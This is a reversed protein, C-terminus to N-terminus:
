KAALEKKAIFLNLLSRKALIVWLLFPLAQSFVCLPANLRYYWVSRTQYDSQLLNSEIFLLIHCGILILLGIVLKTIRKKFQIDKTLLMLSIFPILNNFIDIQYRFVEIKIGLTRFLHLLFGDLVYLYYYGGKWYWLIYLFISLVLVKLIFIGPKEKM